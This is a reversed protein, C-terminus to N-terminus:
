RNGLILGNLSLHKEGVNVVHVFFWVYLVVVGLLLVGGICPLLLHLLDNRYRLEQYVGWCLTLFGLLVFVTGPFISYM